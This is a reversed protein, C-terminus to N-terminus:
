DLSQYINLIMDDGCYHREVEVPLRTSAEIASHFASIMVHCMLDGEVVLQSNNIYFDVVVVEHSSQLTPNSNLMLKM